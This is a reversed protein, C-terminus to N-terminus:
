GKRQLKWGSFIIELQELGTQLLFTNRRGYARHGALFLDPEGSELDSRNLEIKALCDTVGALARALGAGGEWAPDLGVALEQLLEGNPRYGVLSLIREARLHDEGARTAVVCAQQQVSILAARRWVRLWPPAKAALDNAARLIAAREPLPDEPIEDVPRQRDDPVLWHVTGGGQARLAALARLATAASAGNGILLLEQRWGDPDKSFDPLHRYVTSTREGPVPSGGRGAWRPQGYVGTADVVGDALLCEEGRPGEVLLEFPRKARLPHGPLESRTLRHRHISQVRHGERLDLGAALPGLVRDIHEQGTLLADLDLGTASLQQATRTSINMRTPTFLRVHGWRRLHEGLAGAELM